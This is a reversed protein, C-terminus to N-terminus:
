EGPYDVKKYATASLGYMYALGASLVILKDWEIVKERFALHSLVFVGFLAPFTVLAKFIADVPRVVLEVDRGARTLKAISRRNMFYLITTSVLATSAFTLGVAVYAQREPVLGSRMVAVFSIVLAPLAAVWAWIWDWKM